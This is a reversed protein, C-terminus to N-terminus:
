IPSEVWSGAKQKRVGKDKIMKKMETVSNWLGNEGQMKSMMWYVAPHDQELKFIGNAAAEGLKLSSHLGCAGLLAGWVVVDPEFPMENILKEAKELKGSKGYLDVMCAYHEMEPEVGYKMKMSSFIMEGEEVFGGHGCASLVNTFTIEDPQVGHNIMREFEKMARNALGHRAYGGIICNWSVLNKEVMSQFVTYAAEIDGCKAYMDLLSTAVIVDLPVGMKFICSHVQSGMFLSSCGVCADLVISFTFHNPRTETSLMFVFLDLAEVFKGWQVYGKVMTSWSVVDKDKMLDFVCRARDLMKNKLYGNILTSYSFANRVPMENFANQAENIFGFKMYGLILVNWPAVDKVLVEDFVRFFSSRDGLDIYGRMLASVLADNMSLGLSVVQGHIQPTLVIFGSDLFSSILITFTLDNPMYDLERMLLFYKYCKELDKMQRFGTFITNWSVVDKHPMGDFLDEALQFHKKRIYENIMSNWVVTNLRHSNEDFLQRAANLNGERILGKITHGVLNIASLTSFRRVFGYPLCKIGFFGIGM